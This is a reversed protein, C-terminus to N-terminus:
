VVSKRDGIFNLAVINSNFDGRSILNCFALLKTILTNKLDNWYSGVSNFFGGFGNKYTSHFIDTFFISPHDILNRYEIIGDRNIINYDNLTSFHNAIMGLTIGAAVKLFFLIFLTPRDIGSKRVFPIRYLVLFLFLFILVPSLVGLKKQPFNTLIFEDCKM